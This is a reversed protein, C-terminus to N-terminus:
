FDSYSSEKTNSVIRCSNHLEIIMPGNRYDSIEREANTCM